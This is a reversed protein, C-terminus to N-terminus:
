TGALSTSLLRHPAPLGRSRRLKEGHNPGTVMLTKGLLAALYRQTDWARIRVQPDARFGVASM